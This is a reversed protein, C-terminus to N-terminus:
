PERRVLPYASPVAGSDRWLELAYRDARAQARCGPKDCRAHRKSYHVAIAYREHCLQCVLEDLYLWACLVVLGGFWLAVVELAIM